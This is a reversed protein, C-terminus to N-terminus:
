LQAMACADFREKSFTQYYGSLTLSSRLARAAVAHPVDFVLECCEGISLLRKADPHHIVTNSGDELTVTLAAGTLTTDEHERESLRFRTRLEPFHRIDSGAKEPSTFETM